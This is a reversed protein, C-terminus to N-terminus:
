VADSEDIIIPWILDNEHYKIRTSTCGCEMWKKAFLGVENEFGTMKAVLTDHWFMEVTIFNEM